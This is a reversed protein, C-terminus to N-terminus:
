DSKAAAAKSSHRRLLYRLGAFAAVAAVGIVAVIVFTGTSPNQVATTLRDLFLVMLAIGPSMGLVTGIAYDRFSIRSAGAVLNVITFPAIPIVRVTVVTLIGRDSLWRDLRDIRSGAVRRLADRGLYSGIWYTLMASALSGGLAYALGLWPGFIVATAAVLLVLPFVILGGVLYLGLLILPTFQSDSIQQMWGNIREVSFFEGVPTWRWLAALLLLAGIFLAIGLGHRGAHARQDSSLFRQALRDPELPEDPDIVAPDPLQRELEASVSVELTRLSRGEDSRLLEIAQILSGTREIADTVASPACGLHEALLDNRVEAIRAGIDADAGAEIAADCESDLAMSRNSLNSSGLRLLQDDVIMLKSHVSVHKPALGPVDPYYVRLRGYRDADRLTGLFRARLVDMTNQELWGGTRKPLVLVLEPGDAEQLREGMAQAIRMSTLYQNEVYVWRKAAALSALYLREVERVAIQEQHPPYTRAIAVEIHEFQPAVREPWPDNRDGRPPKLSQATARRWRERALDGLNRAAQGDVMLMVDHFPIYPKHDPDLRRKEDPSHARTDWRWKSLDIGGVFALADDIVVVKQHQSAGIPHNGDTRFHLRRQRRLGLEYFPLWERELAYIVAFDWILVHVHLHRNRRVVQNLVRRLPWGVAEHAADRILPERSDIDWGLILVSHRAKCLADHLASFYQEGDVLVAARSCPSVTWCTDGPVLIRQHNMASTSDAGDRSHEIAM